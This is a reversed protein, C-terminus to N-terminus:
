SCRKRFIVAGALPLLALLGAGCPAAPQISNADGGDDPTPALTPDLDPGVPPEPTPTADPPQSTPLAIPGTPEGEAVVEYAQHEWLVIVRQGLAFAAAIDPSAASLAFYDESLFGVKITQMTDPDFTTDM